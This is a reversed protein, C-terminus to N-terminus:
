EILQRALYQGFRFVNRELYAYPGPRALNSKAGQFVKAIIGEDEANVAVLLERTEEIYQQPNDIDNMIEPPISVSWRMRFQDVGHPQVTVYWLMDPQLQMTHAPFVCGLVTQSRWFEDLHKNDPHAVGIASDTTFQTKSGIDVLHYTFNNDGDYLTTVDAASGYKGFTDKHVKFIHYADMYNEVFCKWNAPWIADYTFAHVYNEIQYRGIVEEFGSLRNVVSEAEKNLTIYIYGQWIEWRVEKLQYDKLDFGATKDMYPAAILKGDTQYSWAHYPCVIRAANGCDELLRACRHACVNAFVKISEDKQRIAIVSQDLLNFTLYDGRAPIEATRGICIWETKFIKEIELDHIEKSFYIESPMSGAQEFDLVTANALKNLLKKM